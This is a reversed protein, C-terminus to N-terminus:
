QILKNYLKDSHFKKIYRQKIQQMRGKNPLIDRRQKVLKNHFKNRVRVFFYSNHLVYTDTNM